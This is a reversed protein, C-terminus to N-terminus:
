ELLDSLRLRFKSGVAETVEYVWSGHYNNFEQVEQNRKLIESKEKLEEDSEERTITIQDVNLFSSVRLFLRDGQDALMVAYGSDDDLTARYARRWELDALEPDDALFVQDFELRSFASKVQDVASSAVERGAPVDQLELPGVPQLVTETLTQPEATPEVPAEGEAPAETAVPTEITVEEMRKALVFDPGEVRVLDSGAVDFIEKRLFNAASTDLNPSEQTLYIPADDRDLRQVYRGSGDEFRKGVRLHVMEQGSRNALKVDITDDAPPEIGLESALSEGTGVERELAIDLLARVFGNITENKAVYGDEEAVTYEDKGVPAKSRNLTVTKDGRTITIDGIEDPNLNPLFKQGREFREASTVDNWYTFVSLALLVVAAIGLKRNLSSM